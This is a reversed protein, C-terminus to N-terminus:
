PLMLLDCIYRYSRYMIVLPFGVFLASGLLGALIESRRERQRQTILAMMEAQQIRRSIAIKSSERRELHHIQTSPNHSASHSDFRISQQDKLMKLALNASQIRERPSKILLKMTLHSLWQPTDTRITSPPPVHQEVHALLLKGPNSVDFPLRGCIMKYLLCGASYLDALHTVPHGLIIEPALYELTGLVAGHQTLQSMESQQYRAIGFDTIKVVDGPLIIINSPKLDRHVIDLSHIADLGEFIQGALHSIREIPLPNQPDILVDLPHGNLYEMSFFILEDNQGVDFTRAISPHNIKNMVEVERFFRKIIDDTNSHGKILVKLAVSNNGLLTDHALYVVGMGGEGLPRVVQYRNNVLEGAKLINRM